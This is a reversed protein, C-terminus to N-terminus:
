GTSSSIPACHRSTSIMFIAASASPTIAGTMVPSPTKAMTDDLKYDAFSAFGLLKAREERLAVIERILDANDTKGGTEGRGIWARYVIERLDRRTSSQLFTEVHSRSLTLAYPSALGRARATEAASAKLGESLGAVDAQGLEMVFESEDKLVNQGFQTSLAALREV